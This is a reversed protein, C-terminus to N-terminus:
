FVFQLNLKNSLYKKCSITLGCLLGTFYRCKMHILEWTQLLPLDQLSQLKDVIPDKAFSEMVKIWKIM